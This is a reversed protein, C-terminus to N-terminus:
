IEISFNIDPVLETENTICVPSIDSKKVPLLMGSYLSDIIWSVSMVPINQELACQRLHRSAGAEDEVVIAGATNKGSKLSQVLWHLTKFVQGGGHKIIDVFMTCFSPKGHVMIGINEFIYKSRRCSAAQGIIMRKSDVMQHSLILYKHPPVICDADVSDTLWKPILVLAKVACGYLFIKTQVKGPTIILPLQQRSIKKSRRKRRFNSLPSPIDDLVVGGNKRILMALEKQRHGLDGTLMFELGLFILTTGGKVGSSKLHNSKKEGSRSMVTRHSQKVKQSTGTVSRIRFELPRNITVDEEQLKVGDDLFHVRKKILPEKIQRRVHLDSYDPPQAVKSPNEHSTGSKCNFLKGKKRPSSDRELSGEALGSAVVKCAQLRRRSGGNLVLPLRRQENYSGSNLETVRSELKQKQISAKRSEGYGKQNLVNCKQLEDSDHYNSMHQLLQAAATIDNITDTAGKLPNLGDQFYMAEKQVDDLHVSYPRLSSLKKWSVSDCGEGNNKSSSFEKWAPFSVTSLTVAANSLKNLHLIGINTHQQICKEDPFQATDGVHDDYSTISCPVVSCLPEVLSLNSSGMYDQSVLAGVTDQCSSTPGMARIQVSNEDTVVVMSESLFSTEAVFPTPISKASKWVECLKTGVDKVLVGVKPPIQIVGATNSNTGKFALCCSSPGEEREQPVDAAEQHLDVCRVSIPFADGLKNECTNGVIDVEDAKTDNNNAEDNFKGGDEQALTDSLPSTTLSGSCQHVDLNVGKPFCESPHTRILSNDESTAFSLAIPLGVDEFASQMCNEDLEHLLDTEDVEKPQCASTEELLNSCHQNRAQKLKLAVEVVASAHFLESTDDCKVLESIALAESAAISLEVADDFKNRKRKLNKKNLSKEPSKYHASPIEMLPMAEKQGTQDHSTGPLSQIPLLNNTEPRETLITNWLGSSPDQTIGISSLHLQLVDESPPTETVPLSSGGSLFLHISSFQTDEQPCLSGKPKINNNQESMAVDKHALHILTQSDLQSSNIQHPQLWAPLWATDESFQPSRYGHLGM